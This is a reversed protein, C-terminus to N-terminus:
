QDLHLVFDELGKDVNPFCHFVVRGQYVFLDSGALQSLRGLLVTVDGGVEPELYAVHILTEGLGLDDDLM